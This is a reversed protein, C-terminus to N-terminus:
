QCESATTFSAAGGLWTKFSDHPGPYAICYAVYDRFNEQSEKNTEGSGSDKDYDDGIEAIFNRLASAVTDAITTIRNDKELGKAVHWFGLLMNTIHDQLQDLDEAMVITRNDRSLADLKDQTHQSM